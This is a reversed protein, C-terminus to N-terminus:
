TDVADSADVRAVTRPVTAAASSSLGTTGVAADYGTAVLYRGDASLTLLGESSASGSGVIPKNSGTTATPLGVSQVLTGSANYEDLSVPAGAGSLATAGNGVRYIVINGASFGVSAAAQTVPLAVAGALALSSALVAGLICRASHSGPRRAGNSHGPRLSNSRRM